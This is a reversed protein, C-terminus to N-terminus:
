ARTRQSSVHHDLSTGIPSRTFRVRHTRRHYTERVHLRPLRCLYLLKGLGGLSVSESREIFKRECEANRRLTNSLACYEAYDVKDENAAKVDLRERLVVLGAASRVLQKQAETLHEHGGLDASLAAGIERYRRGVHSRGDVGELIASGNAIATRVRSHPVELQSRTAM